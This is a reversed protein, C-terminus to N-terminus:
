PVTSNAGWGGYHGRKRVRCVRCSRWKSVMEKLSRNLECGMRWLPRTQTSQVSCSRWKSVMEKLSRNLKCGMRWLPRTQASQVSQLEAMYKGDGKLFPQTQVGDEM